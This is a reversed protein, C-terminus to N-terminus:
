VEVIEVITFELGRDPKCLVACSLVSVLWSYVENDSVFKVNDAESAVYCQIMLALGSIMKLMMM